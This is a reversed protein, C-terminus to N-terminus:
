FVVSFINFVTMPMVGNLWFIVLLAVHISMFAAAVVALAIKAGQITILRSM